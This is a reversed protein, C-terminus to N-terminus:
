VATRNWFGSLICSFRPKAPATIASSGSRNGPPCPFPLTRSRRPATRTPIRFIKLVYPQNLCPFIERNANRRRYIRHFATFHRHRATQYTKLEPDRPIRYLGQYTEVPLTPATSSPTIVALNKGRLTEAASLSGRADLPGIIVVTDPNRAARRAAEAAGDPTGKTDYETIAIQQISSLEIGEPLNNVAQRLSGLVAERLVTQDGEFPMLVAIEVQGEPVAWVSLGDRLIGLGFYLALVAIGSIIFILLIIKERRTLSPLRQM